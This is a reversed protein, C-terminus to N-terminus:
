IRIYKINRETQGCFYKYIFSRALTKWSNNNVVFVSSVNVPFGNPIGMRIEFNTFQENEANDRALFDEETAGREMFREKRLKKKADVYIVEFKTDPMTELFTEIGCPDIIYFDSDEFQELTAFYENGNIVTTAVKHSFTKAEEKTIFIHDTDSANRKERTTYSKLIKAGMNELMKALTSKGSATRGVILTVM